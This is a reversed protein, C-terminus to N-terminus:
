RWAPGPAADDPADESGAGALTESSGRATDAGLEAAPGKRLGYRAMLEELPMDAEDALAAVEDGVAAQRPRRARPALHAARAHQAARGYM